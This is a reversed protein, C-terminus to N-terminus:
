SCSMYIHMERCDAFRSWDVFRVIADSRSATIIRSDLPTACIKSEVRANFRGVAVTANGACRAGNEM